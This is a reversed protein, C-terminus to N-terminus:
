SSGASPEPCWRRWPDAPGRCSWCWTTSSARPSRVPALPVPGTTASATSAVTSSGTPATCPSGTTSSRRTPRPHAPPSSRPANSDPSPRIAASISPWPRSSRRGGPNGGGPRSFVTKGDEADQGSAEYAISVMLDAVAEAPLLVEYRGAGRDLRDTSWALRTRLRAEVDDVSVDAFDNTAVGAWTSASGDGTRAVLQLAGQPQSYALRMVPRPAWTSPRAVINPSDPWCTTPPEPGASPDPCSPCCGPSSPSTPRARHPTSRPRARRFPGPRHRNSSRPSTM